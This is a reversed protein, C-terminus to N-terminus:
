DERGAALCFGYVEKAGLDKLVFACEDLTTGTTVVDDVLWFIQGRLNFHNDPIFAGRLNELRESRGLITQPATNKIRRLFSHCSIGLIRGLISAIIEAQNFGRQAARASYLPVPVIFDPPPLHKIVWSVLYDTLSTLLYPQGRFKINHIFTKWAGAYYGLATVTTLNMPGKGERCDGCLTKDPKIIKGCSLCRNFSPLFYKQRCAPCVAESGTGCLLCKEEQSYLLSSIGKSIEQLKQEFM